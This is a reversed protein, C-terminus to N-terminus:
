GGVKVYSSASMYDIIKKDRFIRFGKSAAQTYISKMINEKVIEKIQTQAKDVVQGVEYSQIKNKLWKLAKTPQGDYLRTVYSITDRKRHKGGSLFEMYQAWLPLDSLFTRKSFDGTKKKDYDVFISFATFAHKERASGTPIKKKPFLQRLLSRQKSFAIRGKSLKTILTFTGLTAKGHNAAAGKQLQMQVDNGMGSQFGRIDMVHGKEGGITFEVICKANTPEYKVNTIDIKLDLADKIGKAEKHDFSKVQVSPTTQSKIEKATASVKKLSIPVCDGSKYNSDVFQNYQYLMEMDKVLKLSKTSVSTATTTSKYTPKGKKFAEMQGVIKGMKSRKIALVDAPNWKDGTGKALSTYVTKVVSDKANKSIDKAIERFAGRFTPDGIENSFVYGGGKIYGSPIVSNATWVSSNTWEEIDKESGTEYWNNFRNTLKSYDIDCSQRVGSKIQSLDMMAEKLEDQTIDSGKEQRMAFALAQLSEKDQTLPKFSM